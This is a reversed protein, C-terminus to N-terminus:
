GPGRIAVKETADMLSKLAKQGPLMRSYDLCCVDFYFDTFQETSQLSQQAMAPTPWRLVVWRTKNVRYNQVARLHSKACRMRDAPVDSTEFINSAGRLAIYADMEKMRMLEFKAAVEYQASTAEKLMERQIVSHNVQVYPIARRKRVARI